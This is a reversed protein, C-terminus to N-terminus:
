KIFIFCAHIFRWYGQREWSSDGRDWLRYYGGHYLRVSFGTWKYITRCRFLFVTIEMLAARRKRNHSLISVFCSPLPGSVQTPQVLWATLSMSNSHQCDHQDVGTVWDKYWWGSLNRAESEPVPETQVSLEGGLLTKIGLDRTDARHSASQPRQESRVFAATFCTPPWVALYASNSALFLLHEGLKGDPTTRPSWKLNTNLKSVRWLFREEM